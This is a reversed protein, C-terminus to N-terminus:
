YNARFSSLDVRKKRNNTYINHIAGRGHLSCGIRNRLKNGNEDRGSGKKKLAKRELEEYQMVVGGCGGGGRRRELRSALLSVVLGGISAKSPHHPSRWKAWGHAMM